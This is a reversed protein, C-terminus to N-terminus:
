EGASDAGALEEIGPESAPRAISFKEDGIQVVIM